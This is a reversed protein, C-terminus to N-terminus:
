YSCDLILFFTVELDGGWESFNRMKDCYDKIRQEDSSGNTDEIFFAFKQSNKLIYDVAQLRLEKGDITRNKCVCLQDSLANFLCNGDAPIEKVLLGKDELIAKFLHAEQMRFDPILKAEEEARIRQEIM